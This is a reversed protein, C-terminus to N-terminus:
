NKLQEDSPPLLSPPLSEEIEKPLLAKVAEQGIQKAAAPNRSTWNMIKIMLATAWKKKSLYEVQEKLLEVEDHLKTYEERSQNKNTVNKNIAENYLKELQSLKEKLENAEKRTFFTEKDEKFKERVLNELEALKEETEEAQRGLITNKIEKRLANVWGEISDLLDDSNMNHKNQTLVVEGPSYQSSVLAREKLQQTTIIIMMYINLNIRRAKQEQIIHFDDSTIGQNNLRNRIETLFSRNLTTAM